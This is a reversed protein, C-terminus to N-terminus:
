MLRVLLVCPGRELVDRVDRGELDGGGEWV